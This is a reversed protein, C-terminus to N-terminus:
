KVYSNPDFRSTFINLLLRIRVHVNFTFMYSSTKWCYPVTNFRPCFRRFKSKNSEARCCFSEHGWTVLVNIYVNSLFIAYLCKWSYRVRPRFFLIIFHTLSRARKQVLYFDDYFSHLVNWVCYMYTTHGTPVM